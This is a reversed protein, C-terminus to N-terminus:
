GTTPAKIEALAPSPADFDEASMGELHEQITTFSKTFYALADELSFHPIELMDEVSYGTVAGWGNIGKGLPNYDYKEAYGETFWFQDTPQKTHLINNYVMDALRSFHWITVGISNAQSDPHWNLLDDSANELEGQVGRMQAGILDNIVDIATTM